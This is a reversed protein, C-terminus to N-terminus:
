CFIERRTLACEGFANCWIHVRNNFVGCSSGGGVVLHFPSSASCFACMHSVRERQRSADFGWLPYFPAVRWPVVALSCRLCPMVSLFFVFDLWASRSYTFVGDDWILVTGSFICQIYQMYQYVM